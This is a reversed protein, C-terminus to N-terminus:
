NDVNFKEIKQCDDTKDNQTDKINYSSDGRVPDPFDYDLKEKITKHSYVHNKSKLFKGFSIARHMNFVKHLNHCPEVVFDMDDSLNVNKTVRKEVPPSICAAHHVTGRRHLNKSKLGPNPSTSHSIAKKVNTEHLLKLNDDIKKLKELVRDKKSDILKIHM